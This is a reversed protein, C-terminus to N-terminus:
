LVVKNGESLGMRAGRADFCDPCLGYPYNWSLRIGCGKCKRYFHKNKKLREIIVRSLELKCDIIYAKQMDVEDEDEGFSRLLAYLLDLIKYKGELTELSDEPGAIVVTLGDLIPRGELRNVMAHKWRSLIEPNGEDFPITLGRLMEEKSLACNEELWQCLYLNREMSVKRYPPRDALSQWDRMTQSLPRDLHTLFGPMTTRAATLPLNDMKLKRGIAEKDFCANVLGLEEFGRRGARGAVQKIEAPSLDRKVRGDFKQTELFVIRKVPLNMGMGIADTAVVIRTRGEAFKETEARRAQYPLAGYIVSVQKGLDELLSAAQLVSRRSFVVLADGDRVDDPFIFDETDLRLPTARHHHVVEWTDGCQEILMIILGEAEPAMCAHVTGATVGLIAQTWAWGRDRDDIMQCEDIVAVDYWSFDMMEVTAAVHQAGPLIQEEEGTVMSCVVGAKNIREAVEMALLRLPALYIGRPAEMCANVADYTKGSNTPGIHLIFHRTLKRAAPFLDPLAEPIEKLLAERAEKRHSTFPYNANEEVCAFIVDRTFYESVERAMVSRWTKALRRSVLREVKEERGNEGVVTLDGRLKPNKSYFIGRLLREGLDDPDKKFYRLAGMEPSKEVFESLEYEFTSTIERKRGRHNGSFKYLRENKFRNSYFTIACHVVEERKPYRAKRLETLLEQNGEDLFAKRLRARRAAQQKTRPM